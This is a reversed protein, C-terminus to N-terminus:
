RLKLRQGPILEQKRKINNRKSISNTRVAYRQSIDQLTEGAQVIHYMIEAKKNKKEIYVRDGAHLDSRRSAANYDLIQKTYKGFEDAIIKWSDQKLALVYQVGNNEYIVRNTESISIPHFDQTGINNNNSLNSRINTNAMSTNESGLDRMHKIKDFRNLNYDEIIKILISAYKPNTAYGAKKLGHAWKKYDTIKYEFLFAYRDRGTLFLAYDKYSQDVSKYDRFCEDKTDDDMIYTKGNWTKHCKIGFHNNANKALSSQGAGSELIAQALIISAPIRYEIMKKVADRKHKEIYQKKLDQSQLSTTLFLFVLLASITKHMISNQIISELCFYDIKKEELQM